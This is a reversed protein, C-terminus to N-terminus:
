TLIGFMEEPKVIKIGRFGNHELLHKDYTIVYESNSQIACELIANDDPDNKVVDIKQTPEVIIVFDIVVNLIKTAEDLNYSFDRMLIESFEDLIIQTTFLEADQMILKILLKHSVSYEWQTASIFFNTDLTIKM